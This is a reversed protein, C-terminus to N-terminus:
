YSHRYEEEELRQRTKEDEDKRRYIVIFFFLLMLAGILGLLSLWRGISPNNQTNGILQSDRGDDSNDNGGIDSKPAKNSNQLAQDEQIDTSEPEPINNGVPSAIFINSNQYNTNNADDTVQFCVRRNAYASLDVITGEIYTHADALAESDCTGSTTIIYHWSNETAEDDTASVDSGNMTITIAPATRDIGAITDSPSYAINGNEDSVSFCINQGNYTEDNLVIPQGDRYASIGETMLEEDCNNEDTDYVKFIWSSDVIDTSDSTASITKHDAPQTNDPNSVIINPPTNDHSPRRSRQILGSIYAYGTNGAIDEAGFCFYKDQHDSTLPILDTYTTTSTELAVITCEEPTEVIKYRLTNPAVGSEFDTAVAKIERNRNSLAIVPPTSDINQLLVIAGARDRDNARDWLDEQTRRSRLCIYQDNHEGTLNIETGETYATGERTDPPLFDGLYCAITLSEKIAYYPETNAFETGDEKDFFYYDWLLDNDAEDDIASITKTTSWIDANNHTTTITPKRGDIKIIRPLDTSNYVINLDTLDLIAPNGDLDEITTGDSIIELIKLHDTYDNIQTLYYFSFIGNELDSSESRYGNLDNPQEQSNLHLYIGRQSGNIVVAENFHFNVTLEQGVGILNRLPGGVTIKEIRPHDGISATAKYSVNEKSDTAQFCYTKGLQDSTSSRDVTIETNATYATASSFDTTGDCITDDLIVYKWSITGADDTTAAITTDTETLNIIPATRDVGTVSYAAYTVLSADETNIDRFCIQQGNHSEELRIEDGETYATASSFDTTEDCNSSQDLFVYHLASYGASINDTAVLIQGDKPTITILPLGSYGTIEQSATVEEEQANDSFDEFNNLTIEYLHPNTTTPPTAPPFNADSADIQIRLTTRDNIHEVAVLSNGANNIHNLPIVLPSANGITINLNGVNAHVWDEDIESDDIQRIKENFHINLLGDETISLEPDALSPASLDLIDSVFYQPPNVGDDAKFCLRKGEESAPPTITEGESYDNPNNSFDDENCIEDDIYTYHWTWTTDSIFTPWTLLNVSGKHSSGSEKIERMTTLALIDDYFVMSHGLGSQFALNHRTSPEDESIRLLQSWVSNSKQFVYIGQGAYASVAMTNANIFAVASGFEGLEDLEIQYKGSSHGDDDFNSFVLNKEWDGDNNKEYLHVAGPRRKYGKRNGEEDIAVRPAYQFPAGIALLNDDAFSLSGGFTSSDLISSESSITNTKIWQSSDDEEYMHVSPCVHLRISIEHTDDEDIDGDNDIDENAPVSVEENMQGNPCGSEGEGGLGGTAGIALIGSPSFALASGFHSQADFGHITTSLDWVDNNKKFIYVAGRHTGDDAEYIDETSTDDSIAPGQWNPAGIALTNNDYFALAVGFGLDSADDPVETSPIKYNTTSSEEYSFSYNIQWTTDQTRQLIYVMTFGSDVDVSSVALTNKDAFAIATGFAEQSQSFLSDAFIKEIANNTAFFNQVNDSYEHGVDISYNIGDHSIVPAVSTQAANNHSIFYGTLLAIGLFGVITLTSKLHIHYLAEIELRLARIIKQM